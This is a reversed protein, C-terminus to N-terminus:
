QSRLTQINEYLETCTKCKSFPEKTLLCTITNYIMDYFSPLSNTADSSIRAGHAITSRRKYFDKFDKETNKRKEVTDGVIFAVSESLSAVVGKSAYVEDNNHLLTEFAFAIEAIVKSDDNEVISEGIWFIANIIRQEMDTKDEKSFIKWILDNGLKSDLFFPDDIFLPIDKRVISSDMTISDNDFIHISENTYTTFPKVDIFIRDNKIRSIYRTVKIFDNKIKDFRIKSYATDIGKTEFVLYVFNDLVADRQIRDILKEKLWDAKIGFDYTKIYDAFRSKHILKFTGLEIIDQKMALGYVKCIHQIPAESFTNLLNLLEKENFRNEFILNQAINMFTNLSMCKNKGLKELLKAFLEKYTKITQSGRILIAPNTKTKYLDEETKINGSYQFYYTDGDFSENKLSLIDLISKIISETNM